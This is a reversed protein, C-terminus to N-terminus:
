SSEFSITTIASGVNIDFAALLMARRVTPLARKALVRANQLGAVVELKSPRDAPIERRQVPTALSLQVALAALLGATIYM